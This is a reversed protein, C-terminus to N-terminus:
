NSHLDQKKQILLKIDNSSIFFNIVSTIIGLQLTALVASIGYWRFHLLNDYTIIKFLFFSLCLNLVFCILYFIFFVFSLVLYKFYLDNIDLDIKSNNNKFYILFLIIFIILFSNMFLNVIFSYISNKKVRKLVNM